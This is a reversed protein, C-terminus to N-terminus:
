STPAIDLAPADASVDLRTGVGFGNAPAGGVVLEAVAHEDLNGSLFIGIQQQGAEDLLERIRHSGAALDGSDLRLSRITIGEPALREALDIVKAVAGEVDYTDIM